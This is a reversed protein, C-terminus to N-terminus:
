MKKSKIQEKDSWEEVSAFVEDLKGNLIQELNYWSKGVRHDTVRLQMYNYTRIKEARTSGGIMSRREEVEQEAAQDRQAQQLKAQLTVMARARNQHQSREQQCEATIKTPLHTIRVASDTKNVHQGGAGSARFTDVRLDKKDLVINDSDKTSVPFVAVSITSTHIRGQSETEPVRQVRHVGSEGMFWKQADEHEINIVGVRLGNLNNDQWSELRCIAGVQECYLRYARLLDRAFLGAEDGGTGARIEVIVGGKAEEGKALETMQEIHLATQKSLEDLEEQALQKMDQDEELMQNLQELESQYHLYQKWADHYPTLEGVRKYVDSIPIDIAENNQVSKIKTQLEDIQTGIREYFQIIESSLSIM